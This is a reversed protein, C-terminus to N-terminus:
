ILEYSEREYLSPKKFTFAMRIKRQFRHSQCHGNLKFHRIQIASCMPMLLVQTNPHLTQYGHAIGQPLALTGIESSNLKICAWNGLTNSKERLDVIVDYIEGALCSIFKEEEFPATQFHLGRVTGAVLNTAVSLTQLDPDQGLEEYRDRQFFSTFSGRTDEFKVSPLYFVGEIEAIDVQKM